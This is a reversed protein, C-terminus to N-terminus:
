KTKCADKTIDFFKVDAELQNSTDDYSETAEALMAEAEAKEMQKKALIKQLQRLAADKEAMYDEFARNRKAELATSDMVDVGMTTYMDSLIGQITASQPAYRAKGGVQAFSRLDAMKATTLSTLVKM